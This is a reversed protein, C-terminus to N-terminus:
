DMIEQPLPEVKLLDAIVVQRRLYSKTKENWTACTVLTLQSDATNETIYADEPEVLSLERVQYFYVYRESYVILEAGPTLRSLYRFPGHSGNFVTAHGALVLNRAIGDGKMNGLWAVSQGLDDIEWTFATFPVYEVPADLRLEPIVLRTIANSQEQSSTSLNKENNLTSNVSAATEETPNQDIELVPFLLAEPQTVTPIIAPQQSIKSGNLERSDSFKIEHDSPIEIEAAVQVPDAEPPLYFRSTALLLVLGLGSVCIFLGIIRLFRAM